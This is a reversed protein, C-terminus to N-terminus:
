LSDLRASEVTHACLHLSCDTDALEVVLTVVALYVVWYLSGVRSVM